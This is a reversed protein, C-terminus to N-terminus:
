LAFTLFRYGFLTKYKFTQHFNQHPWSPWFQGWFSSCFINICIFAFSFLLFVKYFWPQSQFSCPIISSFKADFKQWVFVVHKNCNVFLCGILNFYLLLYLNVFHILKVNCFWVFHFILFSELNHQMTHKFMKCMQVHQLKCTVVGRSSQFCTRSSGQVHVQVISKRISSHANNILTVL